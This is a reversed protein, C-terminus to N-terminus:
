LKATGTSLTPTNVNYIAGKIPTGAPCAPIGRKPGYTRIDTHHLLRRHM